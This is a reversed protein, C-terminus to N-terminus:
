ALILLNKLRERPREVLESVPPEFSLLRQRFCGNVCGSRVAAEDAFGVAGVSAVIGWFVGHFSPECGTLMLPLLNM